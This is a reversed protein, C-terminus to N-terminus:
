APQGDTESDEAVTKDGDTTAQDNAGSVETSNEASEATASDVSQTSGEVGSATNSSDVNQPAESAAVDSNVTDVAPTSDAENVLTAPNESM